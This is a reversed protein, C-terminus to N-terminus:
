PSQSQSSYGSVIINKRGQSNGQLETAVLSSMISFADTYLLAQSLSLNYLIIILKSEKM